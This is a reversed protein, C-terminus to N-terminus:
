RNFGAWDQMANLRFFYGRYSMIVHDSDVKELYLEPALRDGPRLKVDNIVAFGQLEPGAFVHAAYKLPVIESKISDPLQDITIFGSEFQGVEPTKSTLGASQPLSNPAPNTALPTAQLAPGALSPNTGSITPSTPAPAPEPKQAYLAQIRPDVPKAPRSTTPASAENASADTESSTNIESASANIESASTNTERASTNTERASPEATSGVPKPTKPESTSTKLTLAQMPSPSKQLSPAAAPGSTPEPRPTTTDAAPTQVNPAPASGVTTRWLAIGVLVVLVLALVIVMAWRHNRKPNLPLAHSEYQNALTPTEQQQRDQESKQLAELIYSM